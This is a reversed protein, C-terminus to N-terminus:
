ILAKYDPFDNTISNIAPKIPLSKPAYFTNLKNRCIPIYGNASLLNTLERYKHHLTQMTEIVFLRTSFRSFDIGRLVELEHGEVDLSVFDCSRFEPYVDLWYNLPRLKITELNQKGSMYSTLTKKGWPDQTEPIFSLLGEVQIEEERHANSIGEPIVEINKNSLYLYFLVSFNSSVPEFCLGQSAELAFLFTNSCSFGNNAGIDIFRNISGLLRKIVIDEHHQSYTKQPFFKHKWYLLFFAYKKLPRMYEKPM